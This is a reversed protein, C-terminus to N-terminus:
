KEEKEKSNLYNHVLIDGNENKVDGTLICSEYMMRLVDNPATSGM